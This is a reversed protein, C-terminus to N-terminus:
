SLVFSSSAGAGPQKSGAPNANKKERKLSGPEGETRGEGTDTRSKNCVEGEGTYETMHEKTFMLPFSAPGLFGISILDHSM